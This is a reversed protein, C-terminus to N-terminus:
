AQVALRGVATVAVATVLTLPVWELVAVATLAQGLEVLAM